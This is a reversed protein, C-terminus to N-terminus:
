IRSLYNLHISVGDDHYGPNCYCEAGQKKQFVKKSLSRIIKTNNNGFLIDNM